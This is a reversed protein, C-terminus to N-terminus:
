GCRSLRSMDGNDVEAALNRPDLSAIVMRWICDRDVRAYCTFAFARIAPWVQLILPGLEARTQEDLSAGCISSLNERPLQALIDLAARFQHLLM